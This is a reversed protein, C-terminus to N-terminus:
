AAGPTAAKRERSPVDVFYSGIWRADPGSEPGGRTWGVRVATPDPGGRRARRIQNGKRKDVPRAEGPRPRRRATGPTRM